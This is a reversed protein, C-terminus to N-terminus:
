DKRHWIRIVKRRIAYQNFATVVLLLLIGVVIILIRLSKKM